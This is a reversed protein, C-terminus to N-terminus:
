NSTDEIQSMEDVLDAQKEKWGNIITPTVYQQQHREYTQHTYM